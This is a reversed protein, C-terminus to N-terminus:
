FCNDLNLYSEIETQAEGITDHKLRYLEVTFRPFALLSVLMSCERSILRIATWPSVFVIPYYKGCGDHWVQAIVKGADPDILTAKEEESVWLHRVASGDNKHIRRRFLEMLDDFTM